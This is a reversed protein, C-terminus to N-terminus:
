PPALNIRGHGQRNPYKSQQDPSVRLHCNTEQQYAFLVFQLFGSLPLPTGMFQRQLNHFLGRAKLLCFAHKQFASPCHAFCHLRNELYFPFLMSNRRGNSTLSGAGDGPISALRDTVQTV